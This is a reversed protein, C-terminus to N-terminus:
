VSPSAIQQLFTYSNGEGIPINKQQNFNPELSSLSSQDKNTNKEAIPFKSQVTDPTAPAIESQIEEKFSIVHSTVQPIKHKTISLDIPSDQYPINTPITTKTNDPETEPINSYTTTLQSNLKKELNWM